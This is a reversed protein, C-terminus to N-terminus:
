QVGERQASPMEMLALARAGIEDRDSLLGDRTMDIATTGAIVRMGAALGPVEEFTAQVGQAALANAVRDRETDGLGPAYAVRWGGRPLAALAHAIATDIWVERSAPDRWREELAAPLRTWAGRLLAREREQMAIRLRTQLEARAAAIRSARRHREERHATRVRECAHTHAQARVARADMRATELIAARKAARDTEILALLAAAREDCSM